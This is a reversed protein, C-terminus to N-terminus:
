SVMTEPHALLPSESCWRFLRCLHACAVAILASVLSPCSISLSSSCGGLLRHTDCTVIWVERGPPRQLRGSGPNRSGPVVEQSFVCCVVPHQLTMSAVPAAPKGRMRYGERGLAQTLWLGKILWQKFGMRDPRLVSALRHVVHLPLALDLASGWSSYSCLLSLSIEGHLRLLLSNFGWM